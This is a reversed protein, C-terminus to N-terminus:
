FSLAPMTTMLMAPSPTASLTKAHGSIPPETQQYAKCDCHHRHRRARVVAINMGGISIAVARDEIIVVESSRDKAAAGIVFDM